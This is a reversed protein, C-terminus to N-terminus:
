AVNLLTDWKLWNGLTAGRLKMIMMLKQTEEIPEAVFLLPITWFGKPSVEHYRRRSTDLFIEKTSFYDLSHFLLNCDLLRRPINVLNARMEFRQWYNSVHKARWHLDCDGGGLVYSGFQMTICVLIPVFPPYVDKRHMVPVKRLSGNLLRKGTFPFDNIYPKNISKGPFEWHWSVNWCCRSTRKFGGTM